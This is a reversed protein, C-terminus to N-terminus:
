HIDEVLRYFHNISKINEGKIEYVGSVHPINKIRTLFQRFDFDPSPNSIITFYDVNKMEPIFFGTNGRDRNHILIIYDGDTGSHEFYSHHTAAGPRGASMTKDELRELNLELTRNLEFCLKYDRLGTVIGAILFDHDSNDELKFIKKSM